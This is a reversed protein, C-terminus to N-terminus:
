LSLNFGGGTFRPLQPQLVHIIKKEELKGREKKRQEYLKKKVDMHTRHLRQLEDKLEQVKTQYLQLENTMKECQARKTKVHDQYLALTDTIEPGPQRALIKKLDGYVKEKRQILLEKEVVKETKQIIRTQLTKIKNILGFIQPDSGELKRWRHVNM